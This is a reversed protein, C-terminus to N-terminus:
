KRNKTAAKKSPKREAPPRCAFLDKTEGTVLNVSYGDITSFSAEIREDGDLTKSVIVLACGGDVEILLGSAAGNCNLEIANLPRVATIEKGVLRKLTRNM